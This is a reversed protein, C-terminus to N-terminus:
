IKKVLEFFEEPKQFNYVQDDATDKSWAVLDFGQFGDIRPSIKLFDWPSDKLTIKIVFGDFSIGQLKKQLIQYLERANERAFTIQM